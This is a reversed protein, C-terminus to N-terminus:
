TEEQHTSNTLDFILLNFFVFLGSFFYLAEQISLLSKCFYLRLISFEHGVLKFVGLIGKPLIYHSVTVTNVHSFCILRREQAEPCLTSFLCCAKTTLDNVM